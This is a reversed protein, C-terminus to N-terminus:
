AGRRAKIGAEGELIRSRRVARPLYVHGFSESLLQGQIRRLPAREQILSTYIGAREIDGAVLMGVLLGEKVVMKKYTGGPLRVSMEKFSPDPPNVIGASVVPLGFFEVSNMSLTGPYPRSSGAMNWGAYKGQLAANPWLANVRPEEWVIDWAEAVDGAAHVGPIDTALREDVLIGRNVAPGGEGVLELRPRVGVAVLLLDFGVEEGGELVATGKAGGAPEIAAVSNGTVVELGRERCRAHVMRSAEEDLAAPLIREMKEVVTVRASRALAAEAAKMGILGAGMVLVRKGPQRTAKILERADGYSMFTLYDVGELGPVPPIFPSSGTALLLKKWGVSRRESTRVRRGEYDVELVGVGRFLDVGLERYFSPPRYAMKRRDAEGAVLYSILPRSYADADEESFVAMSGRGDMERVAAAANVGAASNGVILYDYSRAAM